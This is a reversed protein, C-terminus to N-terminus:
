QVLSRCVPPWVIVAAAGISVIGNNTRAPDITGIPTCIGLMAVRWGSSLM